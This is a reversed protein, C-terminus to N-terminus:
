GEILKLIRLKNEENPQHGTNLWRWVTVYKVGVKDALYQPGRENVKLWNEIQEKM